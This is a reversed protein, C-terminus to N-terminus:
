FFSQLSEKKYSVEHLMLAINYLPNTFRTFFFMKFDLYYCLLLCISHLIKCTDRHACIHTYKVTVTNSHMHINSFIQQINIYANTLSYVLRHTDRYLKHLHKYVRTHLESYWTNTTAYNDM